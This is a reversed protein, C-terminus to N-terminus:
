RKSRCVEGKIETVFHDVEWHQGLYAYGTAGEYRGTGGTFQQTGGAHGSGTTTNVNGISTELATLMAGDEFTYTLTGTVPRQDPATAPPEGRSGLIFVTTGDFGHDGRVFGAVCVQTPAPCGVDVVKDYITAEVQECRPSANALSTGAIVGACAIAIAAIRLSRM